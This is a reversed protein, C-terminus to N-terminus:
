CNSVTIDVEHSATTPNSWNGLVDKMEVGYDAKLTYVGNRCTIPKGWITFNQSAEGSTLTKPNTGQLSYTSPTSRCGNPPAQWLDTNFLRWGCEIPIQVTLMGDEGAYLCLRSKMRRQDGAGSYAVFDESCTSGVAARPAAAPAYGEQVAEAPAAMLVAPVSATVLAAFAVARLSRM